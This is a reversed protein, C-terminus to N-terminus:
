YRSYEVGMAQLRGIRENTEPHSSTLAKIFSYRSSTSGITDLALALGTGYGIEAAYADATYENKRSSWMLFLMCFKTWSWVFFAFIANTLLIASGASRTDRNIFMIAGFFTIVWLIIKVFLLFATVIFNGGGILLQLVTHYCALHAIEHALVGEIMEDSLRLLGETICITKKGIAFANPASDYIIKLNITKQMNPTKELAKEHVRRLIPEIRMRMDTRALNKAGAFTALLWDGIPSMSIILSCCYIILVPAISSQGMGVYLRIVVGM